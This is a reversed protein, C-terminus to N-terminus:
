ELEVIFMNLLFIVHKMFYIVSLKVKKPRMYVALHIDPLQALNIQLKDQPYHLPTIHLLM